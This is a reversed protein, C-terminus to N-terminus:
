VSCRMVGRVPEMSLLSWRFLARASRNGLLAQAGARSDVQRGALSCQCKNIQISLYNSIEEWNVRHYKPIILSVLRFMVGAKTM